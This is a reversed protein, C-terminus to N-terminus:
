FTLFTLAVDLRERRKSFEEVGEFALEVSKIVDKSNFRVKHCLSYSKQSFMKLFKKYVFNANFICPQNHFLYTCPFLSSVLTATM